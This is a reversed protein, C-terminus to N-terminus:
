LNLKMRIEQKYENVSYNYCTRMPHSIKIHNINLGTLANDAFNGMAIIKIDLNEFAGLIQLEQILYLTWRQIDKTSPVKNRPTTNKVIDGFFSDKLIGLEELIPLLIASSGKCKPDTFMRDGSKIKKGPNQGLFIFKPNLNTSSLGIKGPEKLMQVELEEMKQKKTM